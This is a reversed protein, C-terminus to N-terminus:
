EGEILDVDLLDEIAKLRMIRGVLESQDKPDIHPISDRVANREERLAEFFSKTVPHASWEHWMQETIESNSM